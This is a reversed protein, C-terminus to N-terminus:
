VTFLSEFSRRVEEFLISFCHLVFGRCSFVFRPFMLGEVELGRYRWPRVATGSVCVSGQILVSGTGFERVHM